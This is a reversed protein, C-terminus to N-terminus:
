AAVASVSEIGYIQLLREVYCAQSREHLFANADFQNLTGADFERRIVALRDALSTPDSPDYLYGVGSTTVIERLAGRGAALINTGSALAELLTLGFTELVQTPQVLVHCKAIHALTQDHPLRGLFAVGGHLHRRTCIDRCKALDSGDGVVILRVEEDSPWCRLLESLGKEPEVRGAVIFHLTSPRTAASRQFAPAPHPLLYTRLGLPALMEQLFRSPCIVLDIARQRSQVTYNWFHQALKLMSHLIGRHDWKRTLHNLFSANGYNISKRQGSWWHFWAGGANPCCLHYDHATMIARAAHNLKYGAITALIAPSLLHYYNHLHIVDPRFTELKLSLAKQAACNHIYRWPLQRTDELDASTFIEVTHGRERLLAVTIRLVVEAGGGTTAPYDNIHLIRAM